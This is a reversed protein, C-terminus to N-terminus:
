GQLRKRDIKWWDTQRIAPGSVTLLTAWEESTKGLFRKDIGYIDRMKQDVTKTPDQAINIIAIANDDGVAELVQRWHTEENATQPLSAPPTESPTAPQKPQSRRHQARNHQEILADFWPRARKLQADGFRRAQQKPDSPGGGRWQDFALWRQYVKQELTRSQAVLENWLENANQETLPGRFRHLPSFRHGSELRELLAQFDAENQKQIEDHRLHVESPSLPPM